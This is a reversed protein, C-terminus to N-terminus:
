IGKSKREGTHSPVRFHSSRAPVFPSATDPICRGFPRGSVAGGPVPLRNTGLNEYRCILGPNTIDPIQM